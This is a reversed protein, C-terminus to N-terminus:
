IYWACKYRQPKANEIGKARRSRAIQGVSESRCESYVHGYLAKALGMLLSFLKELAGRQTGSGMIASM